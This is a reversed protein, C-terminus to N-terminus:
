AEAPQYLDSIKKFKKLLGQLKLLREIMGRLAAVRMNSLQGLAGENCSCVLTDLEESNRQVDQTLALAPVGEM